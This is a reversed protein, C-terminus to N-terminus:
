KPAGGCGPQSIDLRFVASGNPNRGIVSSYSHVPSNWKGTNSIAVKGNGSSNNAIKDGGLYVGTHGALDGRKTVLVDGRQLTVDNIYGQDVMVYCKNRNLSDYLGGTDLIIEKPKLSINPNNSNDAACKIMSSVSAACGLNGHDTGSIGATSFGSAQMKEACEAIAEGGVGQIDKPLNSYQTTNDGMGGGSGSGSGGGSNGSPSGGGGSMGSSSGGDSNGFTNGSDLDGNKDVYGNADNLASNQKITNKFDDCVDSELAKLYADRKDPSLTTIDSYQLSVAAADVIYARYDEIFKKQSSDQSLSPYLGCVNSSIDAIKKSIVTLNDLLVQKKKPDPTNTFYSISQDIVATKASDPFSNLAEQLKNWLEEDSPGTAADDGLLPGGDATSGGEGTTTKSPKPTKKAPPVGCIEDGYKTTICGTQAAQIDSANLSVFLFAALFVAAASLAFGIYKARAGPYKSM